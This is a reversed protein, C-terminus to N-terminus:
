IVEETPLQPPPQEQPQPMPPLQPPQGQMAMMMEELGPEAQGGAQGPQELGPPLGEQQELKPILEESNKIELSDLGLKAVEYLDINFPTVNQQAVEPPLNFLMDQAQQVQQVRLERNATVSSGVPLIDYLDFIDELSMKYFGADKEGIIQEYQAQPMFQRVIQAEKKGFQRVASFEFTKVHVDFRTMTAQQLAMIGTATRENQNNIGRALDQEGVSDQATMRIRDEEEYISGSIDSMPFEQIDGMDDVPMRAGPYSVITSLSTTSTPRYKFLKNIIIDLNDLRGSRLLNIYEQDDKLIEPFGIGFFEGPVEVLRIDIVPLHYPLVPDGKERSDRLITKRAGVTIVHGDEFYDLIEVRNTIPDYYQDFSTFGIDGLREKVKDDIHAEDDRVREVNKYVGSKQLDILEDYYEVSRKILWRCRSVRKGSPDPFVDMFEQCDIGVGDFFFPQKKKSKKAAPRMDFLPFVNLYSTGMIANQKEFAKMELFLERDPNSNLTALCKELQKAIAPDGDRDVPLVSLFPDVAFVTQMMRSVHSEVLTFTLRDYVNNRYPNEQPDKYSRYQEYHEKGKDHWPRCYEESRQFRLLIMKLTDAKDMM